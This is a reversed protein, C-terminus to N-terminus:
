CWGGEGLLLVAMERLGACLEGCGLASLGQCVQGSRDRVQECFMHVRIFRNRICILGPLFPFQLPVLLKPGPEM